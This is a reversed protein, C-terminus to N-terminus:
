LAGGPVPDQRCPAARRARHHDSGTREDLVRQAARDEEARLAEAHRDALREVGRRDARAAGWAQLRVATAAHAAGVTVRAAAAESALSLRSAQLGAWVGAPVVGAADSRLALAAPRAPADLRAECRDLAAAALTAAAQARAVEAGALDQQLRRVRLVAALPFRRSM